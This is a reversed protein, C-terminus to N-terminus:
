FARMGDTGFGSGERGPPQFFMRLNHIDTGISNLLNEVKEKDLYDWNSLVGVLRDFALDFQEVAHLSDDVAGEKLVKKVSEAVIQRLTNENLKIVNKKM